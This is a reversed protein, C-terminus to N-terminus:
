VSKYRCTTGITEDARVEGRLIEPANWGCTGGGIVSGVTPSFSTEGFELKRCLGFDSIRMRYGSSEGESASSILINPPRIDRHVIELSHLHKLGSTIERVARKPNFCDAINRFKDGSSSIQLRPLACHLFLTSTTTISTTTFIVFSTQTTMQMRSFALKVNPSPLMSESSVNSPWQVARSPARTSLLTM